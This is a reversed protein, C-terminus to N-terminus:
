CLHWDWVIEIQHADGLAAGVTSAVQTRIIGLEIQWAVVGIIKGHQVGERGAAVGQFVPHCILSTVILLDYMTHADRLCELLHLKIFHISIYM